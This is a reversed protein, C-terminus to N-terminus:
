KERPETNALPATSADTELRVHIVPVMVCDCEVVASSGPADRTRLRVRVSTLPPALGINPRVSDRWSAFAAVMVTLPPADTLKQRTAHRM